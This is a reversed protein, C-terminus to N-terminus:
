QQGGDQKIWYNEDMKYKEFNQYNIEIITKRSQKNEVVTILRTTTLYKIFNYSIGRDSKQLTNLILASLAEKPISVIGNEQFTNFLILIKEKM